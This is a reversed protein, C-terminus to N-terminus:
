RLDVCAVGLVRVLALGLDFPTEGIKMETTHGTVDGVGLRLVRFHGLGERGDEM